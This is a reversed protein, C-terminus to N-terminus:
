AMMRSIYDVHDPGCPALSFGCNGGLVTTVGHLPSPSANPDWFLQADYHTHLDIFGPTVLMDTADIVLDVPAEGAHHGIEAIRGDAILVDAQRPPGGTGDVVTGGRIRTTM